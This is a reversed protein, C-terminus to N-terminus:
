SFGLTAKTQRVCGPCDILPTLCRKSFRLQAVKRAPSARDGGLGSRCPSSVTWGVFARAAAFSLTPHDPSRREFRALPPARGAFLAGPCARRCDRKTGPKVRRTSLSANSPGHKFRMKLRKDAPAPAADGGQAGGSPYVMTISLRRRSLTGKQRHCTSALTPYIVM